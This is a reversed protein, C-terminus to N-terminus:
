TGLYLYEGHATIRGVGINHPDDFGRDDILRLQWAQSSVAELELQPEPVSQSRSSQDHCATATLILILCFSEAIKRMEDSRFM